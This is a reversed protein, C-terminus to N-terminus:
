DATVCSTNVQFIWCLALTICCLLLKFRQPDWHALDLNRGPNLKHIPDSWVVCAFGGIPLFPSAQQVFRNDLYFPVAVTNLILPGLACSCYGQLPFTAVLILWFWTVFPAEVLVTLCKGTGLIIKKIFSPVLISLACFMGRWYQWFIVCLRNVAATLDVFQTFLLM